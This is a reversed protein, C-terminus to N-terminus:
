VVQIRVTADNYDGDDADEGLIEWFVGIASPVLRAMVNSPKWDTSELQEMKVHFSTSVGSPLYSTDALM